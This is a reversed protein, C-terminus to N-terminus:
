PNLHFARGIMPVSNWIILWSLFWGAVAAMVNGHALLWLSGAAVVMGILLTVFAFGAHAVQQNMWNRSELVM